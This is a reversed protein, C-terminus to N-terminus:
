FYDWLINGRESVVANSKSEKDADIMYDQLRSFEKVSIKLLEEKAMGEAEM